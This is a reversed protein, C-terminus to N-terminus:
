KCLMKYFKMTKAERDELGNPTYKSHASGLNVARSVALIQKKNVENCYQWLKNRSFYFLASEFYYKENILDPNDVICPDKIYESFEIYNNKLSTQLPGRGKYKWGDGSAEDGNGLRNAYARNAIRVPQRAYAVAQAPTFYKSFIKRLGAASYNLNEVERTFNASEHAMQGISHAAHAISQLQFVRMMKGLTNPGVIGDPILGNKQQFKQLQNM